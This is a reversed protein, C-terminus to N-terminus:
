GKLGKKMKQLKADLEKMEKGITKDAPNLKLKRKLYVIRNSMKRLEEPMSARYKAVRSATQTRIKHMYEEPTGRIEKAEESRANNVSWEAYNGLTEMTEHDLIPFHNMRKHIMKALGLTPVIALMADKSEHNRMNGRGLSQITKAVVYDQQPDYEPMYAQMLSRMVPDPNVGALFVVANTGIFDNRGEVRGTSFKRFLKENVEVDELPGKNMLLLAKDKCKHLKRFRSVLKESMELQWALPDLKFNAEKLKKHLRQLKPGAKARNNKGPNRLFESFTKLDRSTLNQADLEAKISTIHERPVLLNNTNMSKSPMSSTNLLPVITVRSYNELIKANANAYFGTGLQDDIFPITVNRVTGAAEKEMLYFMQSDEFDASLIYVSKFGQFPYSPLTIRMFQRKGKAGTKMAGFVKMRGNAREPDIDHLLQKVQLVYKKPGMAKILAKRESPKVEENVAVEFINTGNLRRTVFLKDLLHKVTANFEIKDTMTVWKRAEDFLVTTHEFTSHSRLQLFTAHTIFMISGHKYPNGVYLGNGKKWNLVSNVISMVNDNTSSDSGSAIYHLFSHQSEPLVRQVSKVTQELLKKTPAVYLIYGPKKKAHGAEVHKRMFEVAARTKGLGPPASVFNVTLTM